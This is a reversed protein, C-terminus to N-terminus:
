AASRESRSAPQPLVSRAAMEQVVHSKEAESCGYLKFMRDLLALSAGRKFTEIRSLHSSDIKLVTAVELGTLGRQTRLTRLMSDKMDNGGLYLGIKSKFASIGCPANWRYGRLMYGLVKIRVARRFIRSDAPWEPDSSARRRSKELAVIERMSDPWLAILASSRHRHADTHPNLTCRCGASAGNTLMPVACGSSM